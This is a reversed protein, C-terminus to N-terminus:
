ITFHNLLAHIEPQYSNPVREYDIFLAGDAMNWSIHNIMMMLFLTSTGVMRLYPQAQMVSGMDFAVEEVKEVSLDVKFCRKCDTMDVFYSFNPFYKDRQQAKWMKARAAAILREVPVSDNFTFEEHAYKKDLLHAEIFSDRDLETLMEYPENPVKKGSEFEFTQGSNLLLFDQKMGAQQLHEIVAGPCAPHPSYRNLHSRSGGIVYQDAFPMALKPKLSKIADVFMQTGAAFIRNKEAIKQDHSLNLYCSPYGSGGSYPLLAIDLKGYTKNIYDLSQACPPCDNANYLKFGDWNLILGSDVPFNYQHAPDAEVMDVILGPAIEQPQNPRIKHVKKFEFQNRKLFKTIFNPIQPERDMVIIEADRNLHKITGSSCHDEHIHSIYIYDVRGLDKLEMKVPPYHFWSGYLIGEDLWPDFIIRKGNHELLATAGGINTIKM